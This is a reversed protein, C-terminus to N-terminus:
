VLVLNLPISNVVVIIAINIIYISPIKNGIVILNEMVRMSSM